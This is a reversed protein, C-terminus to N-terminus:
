RSTNGERQKEELNHWARAPAALAFAGVSVEFRLTKAKLVSKENNRPSTVNRRIGTSLELSFSPIAWCRYEM